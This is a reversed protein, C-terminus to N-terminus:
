TSAKTRAVVRLQGIPIYSRTRNDRMSKNQSNSEVARYTYVMVELATIERAKTKAIVRLQGIPININKRIYSRTRNDRM